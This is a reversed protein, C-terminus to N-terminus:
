SNNSGSDSIVDIKIEERLTHKTANGILNLFIQNLKKASKIYEPQKTLNIKM